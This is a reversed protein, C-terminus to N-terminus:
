KVELWASFDQCTARLSFVKDPAAKPPDCIHFFQPLSQFFPRERKAFCLCSLGSADLAELKKADPFSSALV